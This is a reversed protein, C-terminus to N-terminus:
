LSVQSEESAPTGTPPTTALNAPSALSLGRLQASSLLARHRTSRSRETASTPARGGVAGLNSGPDVGPSKKLRLRIQVLFHHALLTQTMHHHWGRWTRTEYHDMGLEGKAEELATEVPWRLGSIRVLTAPPCSAPANSLFFKITHREDLSRRLVLWGSLGPRGRRARTVRVFACDAEIPGKSGEKITYRRWARAPLRGAVQRVEEARPTGAAVRSHKRPRGMPGAGAPEVKPKGVWVKTSTPVEAFYWKGEAAVGDLFAPIMGYHEDAVVWRFPVAAREVLGHLMELALQPETQFGLAAPVGYRQRLPAHAVDFWEEPMYLRRDLFTYGKGSAYAAFVGQQCNAIKGLAGCYQPAVGVSHTGQKPFGSGDFIVVGDAEGLSEGVLRQHRALLPGDEWAGEGLFQQGARVAAADPGNLALVMPEVTKRELEAVQGRLYFESWERQERRQFLDHFQAHYSALEEAMMDLDRPALNMEPKQGSPPAQQQLRRRQRQGKKSM